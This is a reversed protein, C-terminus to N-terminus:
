LESKSHLQVIVRGIGTLVSSSSQPLPTLVYLGVLRTELNQKLFIRKEGKAWESSEKTADIQVKTSNPIAEFYDLLTRVVRPEMMV